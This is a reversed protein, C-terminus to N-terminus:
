RAVAASLRDAAAELNVRGGGWTAVYGRARAPRWLPLGLEVVVADPRAEVADRMWAHRHADRVVLAAAGEPVPEGERVVTDALSFAAEGAAVNAAARLEVVVGSPEVLTDGEAVLARRAALAGAARDPEGAEPRAWEATERVRGAAEGLRAEPLRGSAVASVIADRLALVDLEGLDRGVILADAGALLARVAGESVGCTASVAKMELADSVVVGGFGLEERLLGIVRPSLTAPPDDLAKVCVHGTMVTRVGADVAAAFPALGDRVDGRIVPLEHHSDVDTAGHGPFHKACAAVGRAQTGRVFAAAHRAVLAPEAGFSRTGIVPNAPNVNVDAVPAFNLNVGCAALEAAISGAVRETLEVDDVAGLAAPGPYSSGEAWELRTVDGGEEDIGLLVDGGAACLAATLEALQARDEVNSAFLVIGGLGGELLRLVWDPAAPGDFSPLLCGLALGELPSM